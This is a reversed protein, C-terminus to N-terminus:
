LKKFIYKFCVISGLALDRIVANAGELPPIYFHIKLFDFYSQYTRVFNEHCTCLNMHM